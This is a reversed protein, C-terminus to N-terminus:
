PLSLVLGPIDTNGSIGEERRVGAAEDALLYGNGAEAELRKFM